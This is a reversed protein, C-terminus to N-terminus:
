ISIIPTEIRISRQSIEVSYQGRRVQPFRFEGEGDTAVTIHGGEPSKLSIATAPLPQGDMLLQGIVRNRDPALDAASQLLIEYAEAQFLARRARGHALRVGFPLQASQTDYVLQATLLRPVLTLHPRGGHHQHLSTQAVQRSDIEPPLIHATVPPAM